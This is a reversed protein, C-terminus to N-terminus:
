ILSLDKLANKNLITVRNGDVEVINKKKLSALIRSFTEPKVSLRSAIQNKALELEFETQDEPANHLFYAAVRCTGSHLTITDIEHILQRLRFSMAQMLSFCTSTSDWLIARFDKADIGILESEILTAASVPYHASDSFVLAEAFVSGPTVIEIIKEQGDPSVRYLKVRGSLLMFFYDVPQGQTFLQQQEGLDFFRSHSYIREMQVDTLSHFLHSRNLTDLIQTKDRAM